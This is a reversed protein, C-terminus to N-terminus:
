HLKYGSLLWYNMQNSDPSGLIARYGDHEIICKTGSRSMKGFIMVDVLKLVVERPVQGDLKPDDAIERERRSLIHRIGKERDGYLLSIHGLTPHKFAVGVDCFEDMVKLANKKGKASEELANYASGTEM